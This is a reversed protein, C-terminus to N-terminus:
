DTQHALQPVPATAKARKGLGDVGGGGAALEDKVEEPGHRLKLTGQHHLAGAGAQGRGLLTAGLEPALVGQRRALHLVGALEDLGALAGRSYGPRQRYVAGREVPGQGADAGLRHGSGEQDGLPARAADAAHPRLGAQLRSTSRAQRLPLRRLRPFGAPTGRRSTWM